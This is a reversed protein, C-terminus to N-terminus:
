LCATHVCFHKYQIYRCLSIHWYSVLKFWIAKKTGKVEILRENISFHVLLIWDQIKTERERSAKGRAENKSNSKREGCGALKNNFLFLM